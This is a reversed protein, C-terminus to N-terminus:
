SVEVFAKDTKGEDTGDRERMGQQQRYYKRSVRAKNYPEVHTYLLRRPLKGM